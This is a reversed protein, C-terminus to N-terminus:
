SRGSRQGACAGRGRPRDEPVIRVVAVLAARGAGGHAVAVVLQDLEELVAPQLEVVQAVVDTLTDIQDLLLGRLRCFQMPQQAGPARSNFRLNWLRIGMM